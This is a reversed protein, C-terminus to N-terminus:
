VIVMMNLVNVTTNNGKLIFILKNRSLTNNVGCKAKSTSALWVYSKDPGHHSERSDYLKFPETCIRKM